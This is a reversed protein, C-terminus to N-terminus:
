ALERRALAEDIRREDEDLQRARRERHAQLPGEGREVALGARCSEIARLSGLADGLADALRKSNERESKLDEVAQLYLGAADTPKPRKM